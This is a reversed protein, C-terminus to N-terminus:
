NKGKKPRKVIIEEDSEDSESHSKCPQAHLLKLQDIQSQLSVVEDNVAGGIARRIAEARHFVSCTGGFKFMCGEPIETYRGAGGVSLPPYTAIQPVREAPLGSGAGQVEAQVDAIYTEDTLTASIVVYVSNYMTNDDALTYSPKAQTGINAMNDANYQKRYQSRRYNMKITKNINVYKMKNGTKLGSLRITKTYLTSFFNPDTWGRANTMTNINAQASVADAGFTSPALTTSDNRRIVKVSLLIDQILPNGVKLNLICGVLVSNPITYETGGGAYAGVANEALGNQKMPCKDSVLSTNTANQYWLFSDNTDSPLGVAGDVEGTIQTGTRYVRQAVNQRPIWHAETNAINLVVISSTAFESSPKSYLMNPNTITGDVGPDLDHYSDTSTLYYTQYLKQPFRANDKPSYERPRISTMTGRIARKLPKKYKYPGRKKGADARPKRVPKSSATAKQKQYEAKLKMAAKTIKILQNASLSHGRQRPGRYSGLISSSYPM